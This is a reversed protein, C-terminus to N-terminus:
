SNSSFFDLLHFIYRDHRRCKGNRNIVRVGQKLLPSNNRDHRRCKKLIEDWYGLEWGDGYIGCYKYLRNSRILILILNLLSLM